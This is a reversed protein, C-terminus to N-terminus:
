WCKDKESLEKYEVKQDVIQYYWAEFDKNWQDIARLIRLFYKKEGEMLSEKYIADFRNQWFEENLTECETVLEASVKEHSINYKKADKTIKDECMEETVIKEELASFLQGIKESKNAKVETDSIPTSAKEVTQSNLDSISPLSFWDLFSLEFFRTSNCEGAQSIGSLPKAGGKGDAYTEKMHAITGAISEDEGYDNGNTSMGAKVCLAGQCSAEATGDQWVEQTDGFASSEKFSFSPEPRTHKEGFLVEDIDDLDNILDYTPMLGHAEGGMSRDSFYSENGNLERLDDEFQLTEREFQMTRIVRDMWKTHSTKDKTKERIIEEFGGQELIFTKTCPFDAFEIDRDNFWLQVRERVRACVLDEQEKDTLTYIKEYLNEFSDLAQVSTSCFFLLFCLSSVRFVFRSLLLMNSGVKWKGSEIKNFNM